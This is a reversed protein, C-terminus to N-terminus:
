KNCNLGRLLIETKKLGESKLLIEHTKQLLEDWNKLYKRVSHTNRLWAILDINDYTDLSHLVDEIHYQLVLADVVPLNIRPDHEQRSIETERIKQVCETCVLTIKHLRDSM